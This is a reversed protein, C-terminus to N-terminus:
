ISRESGLGSGGTAIDLGFGESLSITAEIMFSNRAFEFHAVSFSSFSYKCFSNPLLLNTVYM